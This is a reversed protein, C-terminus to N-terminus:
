LQQVYVCLVDARPLQRREAAELPGAYAAVRRLRRHRVAAHADLHLHVGRKTLDSLQHRTLLSRDDLLRPGM